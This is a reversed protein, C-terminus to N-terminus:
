SLELAVIEHWHRGGEIRWEKLGPERPLDASDPHVRVVAVRSRRMLKRVGRSFEPEFAPATSIVVITAGPKIMTQLRSLMKVGPQVSFNQLLALNSLLQSRQARGRIVPSPGRNLGHIISVLNTAFQIQYGARAYTHILSSATMVAVELNNSISPSWWKLEPPQELFIYVQQDFSPKEVNVQVQAHRATAKWNILRASDTSEYRRTGVRNLPDAFIWGERPRAGFLYTDLAEIGKVPVVKPYVILSARELIGEQRNKFFGFPDAYSARGTGFEFRGRREPVLEYVRRRREYWNLHLYDRFINYAGDKIEVLKDPDALKLGPSITDEIELGFLPLLKRNTATLQMNITGDFEIRNRNLTREFTLKAFVFRNWIYALGLAVLVLLAGVFVSKYGRLGAILALAGFCFLLLGRKFKDAM